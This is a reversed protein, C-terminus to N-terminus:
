LLRLAGVLEAEVDERDFIVVRGSSGTEEGATTRPAIAARVDRM